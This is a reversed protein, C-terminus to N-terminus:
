AITKTRLVRTSTAAFFPSNFPPPGKLFPPLYLRMLSNSRCLNAGVKNGRRKLESYEYQYMGLCTPPMGERRDFLSLQGVSLCVSLLVHALLSSSGSTMKPHPGCPLSPLFPYAGGVRSYMSSSQVGRQTIALRPPLWSKDNGASSSSASQKLTERM